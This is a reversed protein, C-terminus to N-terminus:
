AALPPARAAGPPGRLLLTLGAVGAGFGLAMLVLLLVGVARHELAYDLFWWDIRARPYTDALSLRLTTYRHWPADEEARIWDHGFPVHKLLWWHGEIPQFPPLWQLGYTDEFCAGCVGDRAPTPAGARNPSGLWWTTAERTIRIYHDWYFANGLVQVFAGWVMVAVVGGTALRRRGRARIALADDIVLAAPLLLAPLAFVMYRPGWAYDGSWYLLVGCVGVVPGVTALMAWLVEPWRRAARPLAVVALVLAPSYLFVSKGPSLFLGWLGVPLREQFPSRQLLGATPKLTYGSSTFSGWRAYNHLLILLVFPAAAVAATAVVRGLERWRGRLQAALYLLVGPVVVFYVLKSSVLLGTWVGLWLAARRSTDERMRLLQAFLGTFCFAQLIESFPYRAYVWVGTALALAAAAVLAGTRSVGRRRCLLFFMLVVGAGLASPGLHSCLPLSMAASQPLVKTLGARLVEGPVQMLSQLLPAVAYVKGGRGRPLDPPWPTRISIAGRHVLSEAVEHIPRADGWPVERSGSAMYFSFVALFLSLSARRSWAFPTAAHPTPPM